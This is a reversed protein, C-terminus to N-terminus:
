EQLVGDMVVEGCDLDNLPRQGDRHLFEVPRHESKKGALLHLGDNIRGIWLAPDPPPVPCEEATQVVGTSPHRFRDTQPDSVDGITRRDVEHSLAALLAANWEPSRGGRQDAVPLPLQIVYTSLVEQEWTLATPLQRAGIDGLAKGQGNGNRRRTAWLEDAARHGWVSDGVGGCHM